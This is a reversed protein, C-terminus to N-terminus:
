RSMPVGEASPRVPVGVDAFKRMTLYPAVRGAGGSGPVVRGGRHGPEAVSLV